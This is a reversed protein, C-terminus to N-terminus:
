AAAQAGNMAETLAAAVVGAEALLQARGARLAEALKEETLSFAEQRGGTSFIFLTRRPSVWALKVKRQEFAFWAGREVDALTQAVEDVERAAESAAARDAVAQEIEIRRLADRQAAEVALELQREPSAELPARVIAAHCEALDAFFQVRDADQWRVLDLWRNLRQVLNPLSSILQKRQDKTLKPKVSWVLDDMTRTASAVAGPKDEEHVYALTMVDTWKGQLFAEVVPAVEGDGLRVAVADQAQRTAVTLKEQKLAAAVPAALAAAAAKEEQEVMAELEGVAQEFVAMEREFDRGIRDVSRQMAQFLPDDPARRQEWGMRSLLDILRRAPHADRFFFDKDLLAAKLVPVQLFQILQRIEGPIAHDQAVTDFVRGLLNFTNEDSRTLAGEPLAARLEPFRIVNQAASAGQQLGDLTAFLPARAPPVGPPQKEVVAGGASPRWSGPAAQAPGLIPILPIGFDAVEEEGAGLFARLQSALEARGRAQAAKRAAAHDTKRINYADVSGPQGGKRQLAANMEDYMPAWDWLLEPRLCPGLLAHSAADPEFERWAQQLAVLFVEPRFPNQVLRLIDRELVFGLRVNLTALQAAYRAEFPRSAASSALQSDMEDYSVLSLEAAADARVAKLPAPLLADTERKLALDITTAALHFYAYPNAKLVAAAKARQRLTAAEGAAALAEAIRPVGAELQQGVHRAAIARLSDLLERQASRAGAPATAPHPVTVM